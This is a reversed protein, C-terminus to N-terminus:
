YTWSYFDNCDDKVLIIDTIQRTVTCGVMPLYPLKLFFDLEALEM